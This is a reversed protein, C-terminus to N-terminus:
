FTAFTSPSDLWVHVPGLVTQKSPRFIVSVAVSYYHRSVSLAVKQKNSFHKRLINFHDKRNSIKTKMRTINKFTINKSCM